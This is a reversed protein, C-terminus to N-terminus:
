DMNKKFFVSFTINDLIKNSKSFNFLVVLNGQYHPIMVTILIAVHSIESIILMKSNTFSRNKQIKTNPIKRINIKTM